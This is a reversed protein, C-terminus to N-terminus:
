WSWDSPSGAFWGRFASAAVVWVSDSVLAAGFSVLALIMMQVTVAGGARNVVDYRNACAPRSM